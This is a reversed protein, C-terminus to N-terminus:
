PNSNQKFDVISSAQSHTVWLYPFSMNKSTGIDSTPGYGFDNLQLHDTSFDNFMQILQNLTIIKSHM